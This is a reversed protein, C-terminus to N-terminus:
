HKSLTYNDPLLKHFLEFPVTTVYREEDFSITQKFNEYVPHEDVGVNRTGLIKTYFM